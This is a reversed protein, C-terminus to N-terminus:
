STVLEGNTTVHPSLGLERFIKCLHEKASDEGKYRYLHSYCKSKCDSAGFGKASPEFLSSKSIREAIRCEAPENSESWVAMTLSSKTALLHDIHWHITKESRFHRRIRNELNTSGSGMASGVYALIGSEIKLHGLSKIHLFVDSDVRIVLVYAGKL